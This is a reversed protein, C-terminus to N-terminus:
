FIITVEGKGEGRESGGLHGGNMEKWVGMM